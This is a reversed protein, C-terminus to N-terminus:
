TKPFAAGEASVLSLPAVAGGAHVYRLAELVYRLAELVEEGRMPLAHAEVLTVWQAGLSHTDATQKLTATPNKPRATFWARLRATGGAQPSHEVRLVGTPEIDIGAEERTERIIAEILTENPEVRGAPLYWGNGHMAEQVLVFRGAQQVVALVFTHTNM